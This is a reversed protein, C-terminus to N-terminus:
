YVVCFIYLKKILSIRRFDTSYSLVLPQHAQAKQFEKGCTVKHHFQLFLQSSLLLNQSRFRWKGIKQTYFIYRFLCFFKSFLKIKISEYSGLVDYRSLRNSNEDIQNQRWPLFGERIYINAGTVGNLRLNNPDKCRYIRCHGSIWNIANGYTEGDPCGECVCAQLRDCM